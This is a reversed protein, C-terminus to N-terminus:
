ADIGSITGNLCGGVEAMHGLRSIEKACTSYKLSQPLFAM